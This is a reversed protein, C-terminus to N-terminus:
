RACIVSADNTDSPESFAGGRLYLVSDRQTPVCICFLQNMRLYKPTQANPAINFIYYVCWCLCVCGCMVESLWIFPAILPVNADKTKCLLMPCVLVCVCVRECMCCGFCGCRRLCVKTHIMREDDNNDDDGKPQQELTQAFGHTLRRKWVWLSGVAGARANNDLRPTPPPTSADVM